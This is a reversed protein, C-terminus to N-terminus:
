IVRLKGINRVAEHFGRRTLEEKWTDVPIYAMAAAAGKIVLLRSGKQLRYARMAEPPLRIRGKAVRLMTKARKKSWVLQDEPVGKLLSELKTGMAKTPSILGFGAKGIHSTILLVTDGDRIEFREMAEQPIAITLDDGIVAVAYVEKAGATGPM